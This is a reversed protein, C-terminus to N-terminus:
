EAIPAITHLVASIIVLQHRRRVARGYTCVHMKKPNHSVHQIPAFRRRRKLQRTDPSGCQASGTGGDTSRFQATANGGRPFPARPSSSSLKTNTWTVVMRKRNSSIPATIRRFVRRM